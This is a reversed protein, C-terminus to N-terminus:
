ELDEFRWQYHMVTADDEAYTAMSFGRFCKFLNMSTDIQGAIMQMIEDPAPGPAGEAAAGAALGMALSAGYKVWPTVTDVLAAFDLAAAAAMPRNLDALPKSDVALPTKTLVRRCQHPSYSVVGVSDSLGAVPNLRIDLGLEKPLLYYYAMGPGLDRTLPPPITLPPVEEPALEHASAIWANAVALYETFAQRLLQADSVGVVAGLELMPLPQKAPPMMPHWQNASIKADLVWASQGDALAPLLLQRNAKDVRALLPLTEKAAAKFQQRDEPEMLPVGYTEFYGYAKQLWKVVVDYTEASYKTRTLAFGIPSGGLHDLLTLPQSTDLFLQESWDYFYAELGRDTLFSWALRAGPESLGAKIDEALEGMDAQIQEVLAPDLSEEQAAMQLALEAQQRYADVFQEGSGMSKIFPDSVYAINTFRATAMDRIPALEDREILLPGQGLTELHETTDGITLILYDNWVGLAVALTKTKIKAVIPEIAEAQQQYEETAELEEWPFVSGDVALVLMEAGAITQRKLKGQLQPVEALLSTLAAEIQPLQKEAAQPTTLKFGVILDPVTLDDVSKAIVEIFEQPPGDELKELYEPSMSGGMLEIMEQNMQQWSALTDGFGKDGYVFVETSVMDTLLALVEQGQPTDLIMLPMAAPNEPDKLEQQFEALAEQVAPMQMLTAYAKSGVVADYVERGRMVSSYFSADAPIFSLATSQAVSSQASAHQTPLLTLCVVAVLATNSLLRGM